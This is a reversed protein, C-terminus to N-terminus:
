REQSHFEPVREKPVINNPERVLRKISEIFREAGPDTLPSLEHHEYAYVDGDEPISGDDMAVEYLLPAVHPMDDDDFWEENHCIASVTAERGYVEPNPYLIRVRQGVHFQAM